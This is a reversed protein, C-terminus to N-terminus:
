VVAEKLSICEGERCLPVMVGDSVNYAEGRLEQSGDQRVLLYTGDVMVTFCHGHSDGFTIDEFLRLGDLVNDKVMQYHPLIMARTLGLGPAFRVFDPDVAEGPEEPQVYVTEAANMSGASIGMLVGPYGRLMERLGIERFFRNQTPVHGGALIIFDSAAILAEAEARNRDDLTRFAAFRFGSREFIHKMSGGFFDMKDPSAPDSAVFLARVPDPLCARIADIFGNAPNLDDTGPIVPSSTLFAIM